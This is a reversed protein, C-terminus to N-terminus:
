AQRINLKYRSHIIDRAANQLASGIIRRPNRGASSLERYSSVAPDFVSYPRVMYDFILSVTNGRAVLTTLETSGAFRGTRFHLPADPRTMDSVVYRRMVEQILPRLTSARRDQGGSTEILNSSTGVDEDGLSYAVTERKTKRGIASAGAIEAALSELTRGKRTSLNDRFDEAIKRAMYRSVKKRLKSKDETTANAPVDYTASMGVTVEQNSVIDIEAEGDKNKDKTKNLSEMEARFLNSLNSTSM